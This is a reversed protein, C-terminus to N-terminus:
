SALHHDGVIGAAIHALKARADALEEKNHQGAPLEIGAWIGHESNTRLASAACRRFELLPCEENCLRKAKQRANRQVVTNRGHHREDTTYGYWMNPDRQCPTTM